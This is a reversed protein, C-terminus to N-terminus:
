RYIRKKRNLFHRKKIKAVVVGSLFGGASTAVFDIVSFKRGHSMDHVEKLFGIGTGTVFSSLFASKPTKHIVGVSGGLMFGSVLHYGYDKNEHQAFTFIPLLLILFLIKKM